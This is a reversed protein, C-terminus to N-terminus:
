TGEFQWPNRFRYELTCSAEKVMLRPQNEWWAERPGPLLKVLGLFDPPVRPRGAVRAHAKEGDRWVRVQVSSPVVFLWGGRGIAGLAMERARGEDRYVAYSHAAEFAAEQLFLSSLGWWLLGFLASVFAAFVLFCLTFEVLANGKEDGFRVPM